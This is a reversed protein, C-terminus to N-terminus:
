LEENNKIAMLLAYAGKTVIKNSTFKAGGVIETYNNEKIGTTVETMIHKEANEEIFIYNKNEFFVIAEDPLVFVEHNNLEIEANMFTGPILSKDYDIFHCHVEVTHDDSITKGVLIIKGNHKKTPQHNTFGIVEQNVYLQPIDKEFVKLNLHIDSPNVLEFLIDSPNVYKGINVNVHTVFGQIPSYLYVKSGIASDTLKDPDIHLIKLKAAIASLNIKLIQLENEAQQAIKDSTAQNQIMEKQRAFEKEALIIKTKTLLYEQQLNIFQQDELTALVEGKRVPTGPLLHTSVVYGGM